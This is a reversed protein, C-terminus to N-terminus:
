LGFLLNDKELVSRFNIGLVESYSDGEILKGKWHSPNMEYDGKRKFASYGKIDYTYPGTEKYCIMFVEEVSEYDAMLRSNTKLETTLGSNHYFQICVVPVNEAKDFITIDPALTKPDADNLGAEYLPLLVNNGDLHDAVFRFVKCSLVQHVRHPRAPSGLSYYSM